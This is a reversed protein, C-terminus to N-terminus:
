VAAFSVTSSLSSATNCTASIFDGNELLVKEGGAYFQYTDNSPIDLSHVVTNTDSASGSNPVINVTLQVTSGSYNTFSLWTIANNNVSTYVTTATDAVLTSEISM